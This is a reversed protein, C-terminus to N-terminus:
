REKLLASINGRAVLAALWPALAMGLLAGSAGSRLAVWAHDAPVAHGLAGHVAFAWLIGATAAFAVVLSSEIGLLAILQLRPTGVALYLGLEARRFWAALLFLAATLGGAVLWGWREPRERFERAVDRTFEDRRIYPRVVPERSGQAFAAALAALGPEYAAREFEVWCEAAPGSPPAIELLWRQSQPNRPETNVVALIRAPEQGRPALWSGQRLGLEAALASGVV